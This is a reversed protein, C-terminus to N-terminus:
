FTHRLGADIGTSNGGGALGAPGGPVTYAAAGKNTIRAVTGYLATRKSLNHV